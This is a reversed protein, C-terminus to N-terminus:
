FVPQLRWNFNPANRIYGIRKQWCSTDENCLAYFKQRVDVEDEGLVYEGTEININIWKGHNRIEFDIDDSLLNCYHKSGLACDVKLKALFKEKENMESEVWEHLASGNQVEGHAVLKELVPIAFDFDTPRDAVEKRFSRELQSDWGFYDIIPLLILCIAFTFLGALGAVNYMFISLISFAAILFGKTLDLTHIRIIARKQSRTRGYHSARNAVTRFRFVPAKPLETLLSPEGMEKQIRKSM